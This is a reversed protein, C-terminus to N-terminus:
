KTGNRLFENIIHISDHHCKLGSMYASIVSNAANKQTDTPNSQMLCIATSYQTETPVYMGGATAYSFASTNNRKIQAELVKNAKAAVFTPDQMKAAYEAKQAKNPRWKYAM